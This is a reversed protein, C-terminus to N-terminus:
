PNVRMLLVALTNAATLPKGNSIDQLYLLQGDVVWANTAMSGSPFNTSFLPGTPSGVRIQIYQTPAPANWSITTTGYTAGNLPIPNPSASFQVGTNTAATASAANLPGNVGSPFFGGGTAGGVGGFALFLVQGPTRTFTIANSDTSFLMPGSPPAPLDKGDLAASTIGYRDMLGRVAGVHEAETALIRGAYDVVTKNTLLSAAGGYATVGIEEFIRALRLFEAQSGFGFGLAGLNITPKAIPTGGFAAISNQLLSVHAREDVALEQAYRMVTKDVTDFPVQSGGNTQGSNGSGTVSVGFSTITQGTTAVTYFEAELYELNLAFNLIDIDSPGSQASALEPKVLSAVGATAGAVGLNRVFRRRNARVEALDKLENSM